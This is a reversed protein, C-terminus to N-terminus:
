IKPYLRPPHFINFFTESIYRENFCLHFISIINSNLEFTFKETKYIKEQENKNESSNVPLTSKENEKEKDAKGNVFCKGKCCSNEVDKEICLNKAVYEQFLIYEASKILQYSNSLLILFIM